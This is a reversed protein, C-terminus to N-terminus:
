VHITMCKNTIWHDRQRILELCFVSLLVFMSQNLTEHSDVYSFLYLCTVFFFFTKDAFSQFRKNASVFSTKPSFFFILSTSFTYFKTLLSNNYHRMKVAYLSLCLNVAKIDSRCTSICLLSLTPQSLPKLDALLILWILVAKNQKMYQM